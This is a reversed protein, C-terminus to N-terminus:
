CNQKQDVDEEGSFDDDQLDVDVFNETSGKSRVAATLKSPSIIQDYKSLDQQKKPLNTTLTKNKGLSRKMRQLFTTEAPM